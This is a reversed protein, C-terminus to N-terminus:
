DNFHCRIQRTITSPNSSSNAAIVKLEAPADMCIAEARKCRPAFPCGTPFNGLTPVMGSIEELRTEGGRQRAGLRPLSSLLARTYPNQPTDLVTKVGGQEMTQGGYMVVIEDCTQGILGLDHSILLVATDLDSCLELVLDMIQAQVTVDLATTPEDAILLKPQCALAMAIMVRQRM